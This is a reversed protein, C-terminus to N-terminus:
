STPPAPPTPPGPPTSPGPPPTPAGPAAPPEPPGPPTTPPVPPSAPPVQPTGPEAGDALAADGDAGDALAADGDAGAAADSGAQRGRMVILLVVGIVVLAVLAGVAAIVTWSTGGEASGRASIELVDGPTPTWTVTNGDIDGNAEIVDGPFSVAIDIEATDMIAQTAEDETGSSMDLTGSVVFEDGERTISLQETSDSSFEDIPVDSFVGETGIWDDDEYDRQDYTGSEPADSFLGSSEGQLQERIADEGGLLEAQDRAVAIIVSGDVTNDSQLELNMDLKFCGSLTVVAGLAIGALALTRRARRPHPPRPGAARRSTM